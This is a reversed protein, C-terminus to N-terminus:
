TEPGNMWFAGYGPVSCNRQPHGAAVVSAGLDPPEGVGPDVHDLQDIVILHREVFQGRHHPLRVLAAQRDNSMGMARFLNAAPQRGAHVAEFM